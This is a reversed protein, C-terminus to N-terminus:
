AEVLEFAEALKGVRIAQPAKAYIFRFFVEGEFIVGGTQPFCLHSMYQRLGTNRDYADHVLTETRQPFDSRSSALRLAPELNGM